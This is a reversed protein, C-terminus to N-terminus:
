WIWIDGNSPSSPPTSQIFFRTPTGNISGGSFIRGATFNAPDSIASSTHLHDNERKWPSWSGSAYVRWWMINQRSTDSMIYIQYVFLKNDASIVNMLGAYETGSISPFNLGSNAASNSFHYYGASTYNDLNQGSSSIATSEKSIKNEQLDKIYGAVSLKFENSNPDPTPTDQGYHYLRLATQINANEDLGPITTSIPNGISETM